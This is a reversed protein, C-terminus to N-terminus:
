RESIKIDWTRTEQVIEDRTRGKYVKEQREIEYDIARVMRQVLEYKKM